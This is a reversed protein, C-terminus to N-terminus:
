VTGQMGFTSFFTLDSNLVQICIIIGITWLMCRITVRTPHLTLPIVSSYLDVAHGQGSSHTGFSRLKEGSPSFVSVCHGDCETVVVEGRQNIAVGM